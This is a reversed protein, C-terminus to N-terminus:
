SSHFGVRDLSSDKTALDPDYIYGSDTDDISEASTFWTIDDNYSPKNRMIWGRLEPWVQGVACGLMDWMRTRDREDNRGNLLGDTMAYSHDKASDDDWCKNLVRLLQVTPCTPDRPRPRGVQRPTGQMPPSVRRPSPESVGLNPPFILPKSGPLRTGRLTDTSSGIHPHLPRMPSPTLSAKKRRAADAMDKMDKPTFLKMPVTLGLGVTVRVRQPTLYPSARARPSGATRPNSKKGSRPSKSNFSPPTSVSTSQTRISWTPDSSRRQQHTPIDRAISDYAM